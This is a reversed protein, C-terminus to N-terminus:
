VETDPLPLPRTMTESATCDGGVLGCRTATPSLFKGEVGKTAATGGTGIQGGTGSGGEGAAGGTAEEADDSEGDADSSSCGGACALIALCVASRRWM